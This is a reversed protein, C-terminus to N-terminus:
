WPAGVLEIGAWFYPNQFGGSVRRQQVSTLNELLVAGDPALVRDGELRILGRLFAQRTLQLAEAKPVGQGLYRYLQQFYASTAVDDVYWLTGAASRAGAQVALGAFGLESSPDGLATRCASFSILDLPSGKRQQRLRTFTSLPIPGVGSYLYSAAPGGPLFEAHTAVHVRSYRPDGAKELLVEPTFDRNLFLDKAGTGGVNNLEQPVLPLPALGDFRSAGAALLTQGRQEVDASLNTLALSPTIAFAYRDGLYRSGDHLAAFPVAQLGRDAAILLTTVGEAQLLPAIPGLLTNHLQRAPAQPNAVDLSDQRSLSTYLQRLQDAFAAKSLEVRRGVVAGTLPIFTIDLFADTARDKGTGRAKDTQNQPRDESFRLHVVAPKYSARQFSPPLPGAALLDASAIWSAEDSRIGGLSAQSPQVAGAQVRDVQRQMEQQLQQPTPTPPLGGGSGLEPALSQVTDRTAQGDSSVLGDSAQQPTVATVMGGGGSVAGGTAASDTAAPATAAPAPAASAKAAPATATSATATPSTAAPAPATSATTKSGSDAGANSVPVNFSDNVAVSVSLDPAKISGEGNRGDFAVFQQDNKQDPAAAQDLVVDTDDGLDDGLLTLLNDIEQLLAEISDCHNSTGAGTCNAETPEVGNVQLHGNEVNTPGTYPNSASNLTLTGAGTKTVGGGALDIAGNVTATAGAGIDFLLNFDNNAAGTNPDPTNIGTNVLVNNNTYPILAEFSVGAQQPVGNFVLSGATVKVQGPGYLAVGAAVANNGSNSSLTAYQLIGGQPPSWGKLSVLAAVNVASGNAGSILNFTSLPRVEVPANWTLTGGTSRATLMSAFWSGPNGNQWDGIKFSGVVSGTNGTTLTVAGLVQVPVQYTSSSNPAGAALAAVMLERGVQLAIPGSGVVTQNNVTLTRGDLIIKGSNPTTSRNLNSLGNPLDPTGNPFGSGQNSVQVEFLNYANTSNAFNLSNATTLAVKDLPTVAGGWQAASGFSAGGSVAMGFPSMLILNAPRSLVIPLALTAGQVSSVGIVLNDPTNNQFDFFVGQLGNQAAQATDFSAFRHYLNPGSVQGGTVVDVTTGTVVTGTSAEGAVYASAWGATPAALLATLIGWRLAAITRSRRVAPRSFSAMSAAFVTPLSPVLRQRNFGNGPNPRRDPNCPWATCPDTVRPPAVPLM